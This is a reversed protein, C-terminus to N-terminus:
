AAKARRNRRFMGLGVLAMGIGFMAATSPEPVASANVQFLTPAPTAGPPLILPTWNGAPFGGWATDGILWGPLGTQGTDETFNWQYGDDVDASTVLWYDTNPALTTPSDPLLIFDQVPLTPAVGPFTTLSTGPLGVDDAALYVSIDGTATALEFLGLRLVVSDLHWGPGSGTTFRNAVPSDTLDAGNSGITWADGLTNDLNSVVLAADARPAALSVLLAFASMSLTVQNGAPASLTHALGM